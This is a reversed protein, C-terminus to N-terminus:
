CKGPRMRLGLTWQLQASLGRRTTSIIEELSHWLWMGSYMTKPNCFLFLFTLWQMPVATIQLSSVFDALSSLSSGLDALCLFTCYALTTLPSFINRNIQAYKLQWSKLIRWPGAKLQKWWGPKKERKAWFSQSPGLSLINLRDEKKIFSNWIWAPHRRSIINLLVLRFANFYRKKKSPLKEFKLNSSLMRWHRFMLFYTSDLVVYHTFSATCISLEERAIPQWVCSCHLFIFM